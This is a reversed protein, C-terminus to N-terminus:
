TAPGKTKRPSTKARSTTKKKAGSSRKSAGAAKTHKFFEVQALRKKAEAETKYPGGLDKRKESLVHWADTCHVIM